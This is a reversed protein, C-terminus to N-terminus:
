FCLGILSKLFAHLVDLRGELVCTPYDGECLEDVVVSDGSVANDVLWGVAEELSVNSVWVRERNPHVIVAAYKRMQANREFLRAAPAPLFAGM